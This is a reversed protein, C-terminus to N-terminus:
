IIVVSDVPTYNVPPNDNRKIDRGGIAAIQYDYFKGSTLGTLLIQNQGTFTQTLWPGAPVPVTGPIFSTRYQVQWLLTNRNANTYQRVLIKLTGAEESMVKRVQPRPIGNVADVPRPDSSLRFGSMNIVQAMKLVVGPNPVIGTISSARNNVYVALSKLAVQLDRKTTLKDTTQDKTGKIAAVTAATYDDIYTQLDVLDVPLTLAPFTAINALMKDHVQQARAILQTDTYKNFYLDAQPVRIAM